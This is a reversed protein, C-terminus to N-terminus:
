PPPPARLAAWCAEGMQRTLASDRPGQSAPGSLVALLFGWVIRAHVELPAPGLDRSNRTLWWRLTTPVVEAQKDPPLFHEREMFLRMFAQGSVDDLLVRTLTQWIVRFGEGEPYEGFLRDLRGTAACDFEWYAEALVAERTPYRDYLAGVSVGAARAVATMSVRPVGHLAVESLVARMVAKTVIAGKKRGM